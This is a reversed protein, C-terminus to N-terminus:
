EFSEEFATNLIRSFSIKSLNLQNVKEEVLHIDILIKVMKEKSIYKKNDDHDNRCSFILFFTLFLFIRFAM